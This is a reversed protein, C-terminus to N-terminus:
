NTPTPGQLVACDEILRTLFRLGYPVGPPLTLRGMETGAPYVTDGWTIDRNAILTMRLPLPKAFAAAPQSPTAPASDAAPAATADPSLLKDKM